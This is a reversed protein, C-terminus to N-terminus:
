PFLLQKKFFQIPFMLHKCLICFKLMLSPREHACLLGRPKFLWNKWTPSTLGKGAYGHWWVRFIRLTKEEAESWVDADTEPEM